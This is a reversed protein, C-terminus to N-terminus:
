RFDPRSPEPHRLSPRHWLVHNWHDSPSWCRLFGSSGNRSLAAVIVAMIICPGAARAGGATLPIKVAGIPPDDRHHSRRGAVIAICMGIAVITINSGGVIALLLGGAALATYLLPVLHNSPRNMHAEMHQTPITIALDLAARGGVQWPSEDNCQDRVLQVMDAGYADRFEHPYLRLLMRYARVVSPDGSM